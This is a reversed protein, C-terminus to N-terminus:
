AGALTKTHRVVQVSDGQTELFFRKLLNKTALMRYEASARWDTLPTFDQDFLAMARDIEAEAWPKGILAKEVASARKPTAAMGGFAFRANEVNGAGDLRVRFAACVASIDEDRRKSIKYVAFKDGDPLKPIHLARVFDGPERDQKGYDIFFDELDITRTASGKQLTVSAGLAIFPPPTDGIPSGNAINGGVTGMNRVQEGGIRDWLDGMTPISRSIAEFADTFTVGAGITIGADDEEITQLDVLNGIFVAPSIDRMHKTVWLGVDTSGAVVTADPNNELVDALDNATAPVISSGEPSNIEVRSGDKLEALKASIEEHTVVLKDKGNGTQGVAEAANLIAEYGTCRCLNGQLTKEIREADAKPTELWLGYLSMVIGPTCFGCQSGHFDVMAQQVPHLQGNVDALHEVTVIHCADLSAMFRICANVSEYVLGKPGIRGVLVTCAGCDGEACGEKTGTLLRQLRLYDLLTLTPSVNQLHVVESNLIFRLENRVATPM